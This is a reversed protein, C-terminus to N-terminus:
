REDVSTSLNQILVAQQHGSFLWESTEAQWDAVSTRIQDGLIKSGSRTPPSGSAREDTPISHKTCASNQALQTSTVSGFIAKRRQPADQDQGSRGFRGWVWIIALHHYRGGRPCLGAVKRDQWGLEVGRIVRFVLAHVSAPCSEMSSEVIAM